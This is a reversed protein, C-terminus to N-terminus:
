DDEQLRRYLELATKDGAALLRVVDGLGESFNRLTANARAMESVMLESFWFFASRARAVDDASVMLDTEAKPHTIRNRVRITQKLNEWGEVGFDPQDGLACNAAIRATLRVMATTSLFRRQESIKGDEGVFYSTESLARREEDSLLGMAEAVEMVHERYMWTLGEVAAIFTRLLGRRNAPTDDQAQRSMAEDVDLFLAGVLAPWAPESVKSL